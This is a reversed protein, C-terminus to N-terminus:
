NYYQSFDYFGRNTKYSKTKRKGGHYGSHDYARKKKKLKEENRDAIILLSLYLRIENYDESEKLIKDKRADKVVFSEEGDWEVGFVKLRASGKERAFDSEKVDLWWKRGESDVYDPKEDFNVM